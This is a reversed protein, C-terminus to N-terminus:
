KKAFVVIDDAFKKVAVKWLRKRDEKLKVFERYVYYFRRFKKPEDKLTSM